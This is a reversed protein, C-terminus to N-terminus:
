SRLQMASEEGTGNDVMRASVDGTGTNTSGTTTDANQARTHEGGTYYGKGARILKVQERTGRRRGLINLRHAGRQRQGRDLTGANKGKHDKKGQNKM